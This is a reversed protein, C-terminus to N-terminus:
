LRNLLDANSLSHNLLIYQTPSQFIFQASRVQDAMSCRDLKTCRFTVHGFRILVFCVRVRVRVRVHDSVRVCVYVVVFVYVCCYFGFGHEGAYSSWM